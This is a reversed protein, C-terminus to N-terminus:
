ESDGETQLGAEKLMTNMVNRIKDPMQDSFQIVWKDNIKNCTAVHHYDNYFRDVVFRLITLPIAYLGCLNSSNYVDGSNWFDIHSKGIDTKCMIVFAKLKNAYKDSQGSKVIEVFTGFM